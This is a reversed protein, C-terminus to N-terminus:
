YLILFAYLIGLILTFCANYKEDVMIQQLLNPELMRFEFVSLMKLWKVVLAGMM